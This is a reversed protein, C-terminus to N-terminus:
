RTALGPSTSRGATYSLVDPGSCRLM